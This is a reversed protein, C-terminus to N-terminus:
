RSSWDASATQQELAERTENFLVRLEPHDIVPRTSGFTMHWRLKGARGFEGTSARLIAICGIAKANLAICRARVLGIPLGLAMAWSRAMGSPFASRARPRTASREGVAPADLICTGAGRCDHDLQGHAAPIGQERHQEGSGDPIPSRIGADDGRPFSSPRRGQRFLSASAVEARTADFV